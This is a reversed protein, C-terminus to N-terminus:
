EGDSATSVLGLLVKLRTTESDPYKPPMTCCHQFQYSTGQNSAIQSQTDAVRLWPLDVRSDLNATFVQASRYLFKTSFVGHLSGPQEAPILEHQPCPVPLAKM